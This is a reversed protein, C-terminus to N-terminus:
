GSHGWRERYYAEAIEECFPHYRQPLNKMKAKLSARSEEWPRARDIAETINSLYELLKKQVRGNVESDSSLSLSSVSQEVDFRNRAFTKLCEGRFYEAITGRNLGGLEEATESVSSRTFGKARLHELVREELPVAEAGASAVDKPLHRLSILKKGEAKVLLVARTITSELERINGPWPHKTLAEVVSRSLQLGGGQARLFHQVLLPIDAKRERLTPLEVTLVNLRYYLDERFGRGRVEEKLNKNSAAIVRVDVKLTRAGGVRELEGEQLVRLLKVQFNESTEGIEDLFITGGHALEFRGMREKVAGTFAGKEHGFLESELLTETLAGCNVAVFAKGARGSRAHIGRAVLEKGTGSEGLVLVPADSGAIKEIFRVVEKMKGGSAHVIREFVRVQDPDERDETGFPVMDDARASLERIEKRYRHIEDLLEESREDKQAAEQRALESELTEVKKEREGLQALILKKETELKEVKKRQSRQRYISGAAVTILTGLLFPAVPLMISTQSFLFLSLVFVGALGILPVLVAYPRRLAVAAASCAGAFLIALITVIWGDPRELFRDRLANDLFAAHLVISPLRSGMQTDLFRGRGEAIVCVLIIKDRFSGLPVLGQRDMRMADYSRLVEIFPFRRYAALGGPHNLAVLGGPASFERVDNRSEVAFTEGDIRLEGGRYVHLLALGFAPRRGEDSQLVIPVDGKGSYHVHGLAAAADRLRPFSEHPGAAATGEEEVTDYYSPLVVNGAARTVATLLEDYEPYELREEEFVVEVGIAGAGLETLVRIMLAHFSRKVPWGLSRVAEDDIYVLVINSDAPETGRMTDLPTQLLVLLLASVASLVLIPRRHNGIAKGAM